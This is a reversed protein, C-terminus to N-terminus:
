EWSVGHATMTRRSCSMVLGVTVNDREDRKGVAGIHSRHTLTDIYPTDKSVHCVHCKSSVYQAVAPLYCDSPTVNPTVNPTANVDRETLFTV